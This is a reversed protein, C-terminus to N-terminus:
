VFPFRSTIIKKLDPMVGIPDPPLGIDTPVRLHSQPTGTAPNSLITRM